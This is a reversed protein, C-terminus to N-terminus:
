EYWLGLRALAPVLGFPSDPLTVSAAGPYPISFKKINYGLPFLSQGIILFIDWELDCLVAEM